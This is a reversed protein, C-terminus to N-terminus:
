EPAFQAAFWRVTSKTKGAISVTFVKEDDALDTLIERRVNARLKPTLRTLETTSL